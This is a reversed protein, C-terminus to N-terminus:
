KRNSGSSTSCARLYSDSLLTVHYFRDWAVDGLRWASTLGGLQPAAELLTVRAGRQALAARTDYRAHRRWRRGM